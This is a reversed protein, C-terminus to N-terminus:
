EPIKTRRPSVNSSINKTNENKLIILETIIVFILPEGLFFGNNHFLSNITFGILSLFIALSLYKIERNRSDKFLNSLVDKNTIYRQASSYISLVGMIVLTLISVVILLEILSIGRLHLPRKNELLISM